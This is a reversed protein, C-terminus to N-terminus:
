SLKSIFKLFVEFHYLLLITLQLIAAKVKLKSRHVQTTRVRQIHASKDLVDFAHWLSKKIEDM